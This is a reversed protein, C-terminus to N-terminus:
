SYQDLIDSIKKNKEKMIKRNYIRKLEENKDIFCDFCLNRIYGLYTVKISESTRCCGGVCQLPYNEDNTEVHRLWQSKKFLESIIRKREDFVRQEEKKINMDKTYKMFFNCPEFEVNFEYKLDDWMNKKACRFFLYNGEENKRIDCPLGCNCLPIEKAYMNNPYSYSVDFRTYRGGRIKRWTSKKHMMLCEAIDNEAILNDYEIRANNDNFDNILRRDYTEDCVGNLIDCVHENYEMFKGITDVKYIAAVEIPEYISTNLGGEGDCHEWFRRYLRRTEGVYYFDNTCRLIYIWHMIVIIYVDRLKFKLLFFM